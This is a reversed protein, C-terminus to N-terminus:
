ELFDPIKKQKACTIDVWAAPFSVCVIGNEDESIVKCKDPYKEALRLIKNRLRNNKSFVAIAIKGRANFDISNFVMLDAGVKEPFPYRGLRFLIKRFWALCLRQYGYFDEKGVPMYEEKDLDEFSLRETLSRYIRETFFDNPIASVQQLIKSDTENLNCCYDKLKKVEDKDIGYHEYYTRRTRM